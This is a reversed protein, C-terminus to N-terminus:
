TQSRRCGLHPVSGNGTPRSAGYRREAIKGRRAGGPGTFITKYVDVSLADLTLDAVKAQALADIYGILPNRYEDGAATSTPWKTLAGLSAYDEGTGGPAIAERGTDGLPRYLV